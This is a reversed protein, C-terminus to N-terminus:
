KEAKAVVVDSYRDFLSTVWIEPLKENKGREIEIPTNGPGITREGLM